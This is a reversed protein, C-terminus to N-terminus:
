YSGLSIFVTSGMINNAIDIAVQIEDPECINEDNVVTDRFWYEIMEIMATLIALKLKRHGKYNIDGIKILNAEKNCYKLFANNLSLIFTIETVTM